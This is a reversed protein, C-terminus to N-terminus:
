EKVLIAAVGLGEFAEVLVASVGLGVLVGTFENIVELGALTEVLADAVGALADTVGALADTVGALADTFTIAALADTAGAFADTVGALADIVGPGDALGEGLTATVGIERASVGLDIDDFADEEVFSDGPPVKGATGDKSSIAYLGLDGAFGSDLSALVVTVDPKALGFTAEFAERLVVREEFGDEFEFAEGARFDEGAALFAERSESFDGGTLGLTMDDGFFSVEFGEAELGLAAVVFVVFVVRLLVMDGALRFVISYLVFIGEGLVAAM